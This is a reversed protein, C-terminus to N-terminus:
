EQKLKKVSERVQPNNVVSMFKENNMLAQIDGSKIAEQVQPDDVLAKIQPNAALGTVVSASAPNALLKRKYLGLEEPNVNGERSLAPLAPVAPLINENKGEEGCCAAANLFIFFLFLFVTKKM